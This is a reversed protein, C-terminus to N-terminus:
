CAHSCIRACSTATAQMGCAEMCRRWCVQTGDARTAFRPTATGASPASRSTTRGAEADFGLLVTSAFIALLALVKM